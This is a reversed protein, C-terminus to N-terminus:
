KIKRFRNCFFYAFYSGWIGILAGVLLDSPYHRLILVRTIACLCAILYVLFTIPKSRCFYSLSTAISFVLASHGSPMSHRFYDFSFGSFGFLHHDLYMEPRYRGICTKIVVCLIITFLIGLWFQTAPRKGFQELNKSRWYLIVLFFCALLGWIATAFSRHVLMSFKVSIPLQHTLTSALSLSSIDFYFFSFYTLLAFIFSVFILNRLRM